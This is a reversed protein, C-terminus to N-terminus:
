SKLAVAMAELKGRVSADLIEDGIEVKIGGILEPDVSVQAEIKRKFKQELDDILKKLQKNEMTFASVIKADLVGEHQAKLQEFLQNIQSLVTIRKNEALLMMLNRAESNFKNRGIELFLEGLQKASVVPNGILLKVHKDEAIEVALQLMKSWQDLSDGAVAMKYVAEAYPRAVTIAEAM